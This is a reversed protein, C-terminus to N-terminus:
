GSHGHRYSRTGTCAASLAEQLQEQIEPAAGTFPDFQQTFRYGNDAVASFLKEGLRTVIRHYGYRELTLIARQYTLGEPQGSRNNEPANRFAHDSAAM